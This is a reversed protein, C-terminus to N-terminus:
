NDSSKSLKSRAASVESKRKASRQLRWHESIVTLVFLVWSVIALAWLLGISVDGKPHVAKATAGVAPLLTPIATLFAVFFFFRSRLARFILRRKIETAKGIPALLWNRYEDFSPIRRLM